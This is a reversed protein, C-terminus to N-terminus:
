APSQIEGVGSAVAPACNYKMAILIVGAVFLCAAILFLGLDTRHTVDSIKGVAIPSVFGSLNGISNILGIGGAAAMGSLFETPLAVMLPITSFIAAAAVTLATMAILTDHGFIGALILGVAGVWAAFAIHLHREGTRDSNRGLWIMVIAAVVYPIASLLGIDLPSKIGTNKILQPLWFSIGYLGMILLFLVFSSIWVRVDVLVHGLSVHHDPRFDKAINKELLVKEGENLWKASRITDDLLFFALIGLLVAPLGELLFLWQWGHLGGVGALKQMIWGSVPGGVIGSVSMASMFIAVVQGRKRAPFWFTLYLIVGPFFGAEAMGLAFRVFYLWGPSNVFMMSASLLGWIFAISAIWRRAGVKYLIVNSPIEFFCYGFFFIGAGWAYITDTWNFQAMMELKAFSINVRDLYDIIYIIFLFPILRWTIKAYVRAEEILSHSEQAEVSEKM